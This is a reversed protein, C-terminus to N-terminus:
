IGGHERVSEKGIKFIETQVASHEKSCESKEDAWLFRISVAGIFNKYHYELGEAPKMLLM